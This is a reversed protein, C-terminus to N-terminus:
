HSQPSSLDLCSCNVSLINHVCRQNLLYLRDFNPTNQRRYRFPILKQSFDNLLHHDGCLKQLKAFTKVWGALGAPGSQTTFRIMPACHECGLYCSVFYKKFVSPLEFPSSVLTDIKLFLFNIKPQSCKTGLNPGVRLLVFM